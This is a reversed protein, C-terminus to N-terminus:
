ILSHSPIGIYFGQSYHVGIERVKDFVEKSHIYEAITKIGLDNSFNLINKVIIQSYVDTDINKILSQDLKLYDVDLKLIYEFNSFGSGFDDIAIRCNMSKANKIFEEMHSFNYIGESELIEFIIRDAIKNKELTFLLYRVTDPDFVDQINLNISFDLDTEKFIDCAADLIIRTMKPYLKVTKAAQIFNEPLVLNGEQDFIRALCEYKEIKMTHNNMVPQFYPLLRHNNIADKFIRAQYINKGYTDKRKCGPDYYFYKKRSEKATKMADNAMVLLNDDLSVVSDANVIGMTM